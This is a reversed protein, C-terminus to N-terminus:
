DDDEEQVKNKNEDKPASNGSENKDGKDGSEGKGENESERAGKHCSVCNSFDNIGEEIHKNMINSQSHEHCGYCTYTKFNSSAHCTICKTNHDKDLEFYSTHDFTSPLWKSTNHCKYCNDDFSAHYTDDPKKHCSICNNKAVGLILEHKFVVESKWGKTNHCNKCDPSVQKHFDDSNSDHCSNCKNIVAASLLEHDFKSKQADPVLGNHDSHCATCEQGELYEHFYIKEKDTKPETATTLVKGIESLKHCEICKDTEVGWFPKHCSVCKDKLEKHGEILEGPNIMTHPYEYMLWISIITFGIVVLSKM